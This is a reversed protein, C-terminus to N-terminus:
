ILYDDVLGCWKCGSKVVYVVKLCMFGSNDVYFGSEVVHFWM